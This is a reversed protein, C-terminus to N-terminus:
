KLYLIYTHVPINNESSITIFQRPYMKNNMYHLGEYSYTYTVNRTVAGEVKVEETEKLKNNLYYGAYDAYAFPLGYFPNFSEEDYTYTRTVQRRLAPYEEVIKSINDFNKKSGEEYTFTKTSRFVLDKSAAEKCLQHIEQIDGLMRNYLRLDKMYVLNDFFEKDYNEEIKKIRQTEEDRSVKMEQRVQGDVTYTMSEMLGEVDYNINVTESYKEGVHYISAVTKDKNYTFEFSYLSDITISTLVGKDDYNYVENPAYVDSRYWIKKIKCKPHYTEVNKQCSSFAGVVFIALAVLLINKKM